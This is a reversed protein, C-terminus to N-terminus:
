NGAPNRSTELGTRGAGERQLVIPNTFLIANPILVRGDGQQLTTYRLDIGSVVGEFGSVVIRDHRVFPRYFLLLLGALLNSLVDRFAFGLAFGTLGLGAVLAAVNVGLTGLATVVGLTILAVKASQGLLHIADQRSPEARDYLRRTIRHIVAGALWFGALMLLGGAARGALHSTDSLFQRVLDEIM